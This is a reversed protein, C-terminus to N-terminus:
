RRRRRAALGALALLSLTATTPEPIIETRTTLTGTSLGVYTPTTASSSIKLNFQKNNNANIRIPSQGFDLVVNTISTTDNLTVTETGRYTSRTGTITIEAPATSNNFLYVSLTISSLEIDEDTKNAVTMYISYSGNSVDVNPEFKNHISKNPISELNNLSITFPTNTDDFQFSQAGFRDMIFSGSWDTYEYETATAVGAAALLLTITKKM